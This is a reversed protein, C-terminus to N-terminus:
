LQKKLLCTETTPFLLQQFTSSHKFKLQFATNVGQSSRMSPSFITLSPLETVLLFVCMETKCNSDVSVGSDALRVRTYM